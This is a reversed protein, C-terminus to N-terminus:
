NPLARRRVTPETCGARGLTCDCCCCCCCCCCLATATLSEHQKKRSKKDSRCLLNDYQLSPAGQICLMVIAVVAAAPFCCCCRLCCCDPGMRCRENLHSPVITMICDQRVRCAHCCVQLLLLLLFRLMASSGHCRQEGEPSAGDDYHLGQLSQVGHMCLLLSANAGDTPFAAADDDTVVWAGLAAAAEQGLQYVTNALCLGCRGMLRAM